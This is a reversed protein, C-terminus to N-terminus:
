KQLTYEFRFSGELLDHVDCKRAANFLLVRARQDLGEGLDVQINFLTSVKDTTEHSRDIKVAIKEPSIHKNEAVASITLM